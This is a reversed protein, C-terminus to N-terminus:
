RPHPLAHTGLWASRGTFGNDQVRVDEDSGDQPAADETEQFGVGPPHAEHCRRKDIEL